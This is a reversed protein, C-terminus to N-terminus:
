PTLVRYAAHIWEGTWFNPGGNAITRGTYPGRAQRVADRDHQHVAYWTPGLHQVSLEPVHGVFSSCGAAVLRMGLRTDTNRWQAMALCHGGIALLERRPVAWAAGWHVIKPSPLLYMGGPVEPWHFKVAQAIRSDTRPYDTLPSGDPNVFDFRLWVISKPLSSLLNRIRRCADQHLRCDDDIHFLIDGTAAHFLCNDPIASAPDPGARGAIVELIKVPFPAGKTVELVAAVTDDDPNDVAIVLEDPPESQALIPGIAWRDRWVAARNRTPIVMSLKM